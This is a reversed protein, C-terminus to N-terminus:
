RGETGPAPAAIRMWHTPTMTAVYDRPSLGQQNVWVKAFADWHCDPWRVPGTPDGEPVNTRKVWLDVLAGDKPASDMTRWGDGGPTPAPHLYLPEVETEKKWEVAQRANSTHAYGHSLKARWAVAEGEAGSSAPSTFKECCALVYREPDGDHIPKGCCVPGSSAPSNTLASYPRRDAGHPESGDAIAKTCAECEIVVAPSGIRRVHETDGCRPCYDIGAADMEEWSLRRPKTTGAEVALAATLHSGLADLITTALECSAAHGASPMDLVQEVIRRLDARDGLLTPNTM